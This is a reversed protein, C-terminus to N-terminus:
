RRILILKRRSAAQRRGSRPRNADKAPSVSLVVTVVVLFLPMIGGSLLATSFERSNFFYMNMSLAVTLIARIDAFYIRNILITSLTAIAGGIVAFAVIGYWGFSAYGSGIFGAQYTTEARFYTQPIFSTVEFTEQGLVSAFTGLNAVGLFQTRDPFENFWLRLADAQAFTGRYFVLKYLDAVEVYGEDIASRYQILYLSLLLTPIALIVLPLFFYEKSSLSLRGKYVIFAMIIICLITYILPFKNMQIMTFIFTAIISLTAILRLQRFRYFIFVSALVLCISITQRSYNMLIEIPTGAFLERRIEEYTFNTNGAFYGLITALRPPGMLEVLYFLGCIMFGVALIATATRTDRILLHRLDGTDIRRNLLQPMLSRIALITLALIVNVLTIALIYRLEITDSVNASLDRWPRILTHPGYQLFYISVFFTVPSITPFRSRILVFLLAIYGLLAALYAIAEIM